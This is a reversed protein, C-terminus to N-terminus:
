WQLHQQSSSDQNQANSPQLETCDATTVKDVPDVPLPDCEFIFYM